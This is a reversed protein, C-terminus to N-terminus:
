GEEVAEAVPENLKWPKQFREIRLARGTGPDIELFLGDARCDGKALKMRVPMSTRNRELICEVERGIVSDHAGCFGADTCYGTGGSLITEDATQVHTHTGVVCSVSGDLARGLAIKESTAEAHFDVLICLTEKRVQEIVKESILFPNDVAPGMFTRGLLNVVGLKYGNGQVVVWGKGPCTEPFNAPRIVRPEEAFFPVIERQDWCHDGLTIADVKARMLEYALRPTLGSGGAANEGNAVVLDPHFQEFLDPLVGKVTERGPEGVVDGLFLIKM